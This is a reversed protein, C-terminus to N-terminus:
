QSKEFIHIYTFSCLLLSVQYQQMFKQTWGYYISSYFLTVPLPIQSIYSPIGMSEMTKYKQSKLSSYCHKKKKEKSLFSISGKCYVLVSWKKKKRKLFLGNTDNIHKSGTKVSYLYEECVQLSKKNKKMIMSKFHHCKSFKTICWFEEWCPASFCIRWFDWCSSTTKYSDEIPTM